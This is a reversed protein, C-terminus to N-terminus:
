TSDGGNFRGQPNPRSADAPGALRPRQPETSAKPTPSDDRYAKQMEPILLNAIRDSEAKMRRNTQALLRQFIPRQEDWSMKHSMEFILQDMERIQGMLRLESAELAAIKQEAKDRDNISKNWSVERQQLRHNLNANERELEAIRKRGFLDM